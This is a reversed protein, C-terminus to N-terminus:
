LKRSKRFCSEDGLYETYNEKIFDAVDIKEKWIEGKFGLWANNM